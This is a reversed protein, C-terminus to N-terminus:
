TLFHENLTIRKGSVVLLKEKEMKALERSISTRSVGFHEALETKSIPLILSSNQQQDYLFLLYTVLQNRITVKFENKIRSGIKLSNDSLNKLVNLMFTKDLAMLDLVSEKSISLIDVDERAIFNMIYYPTSSFAVNNGIVDNAKFIRIILKDGNENLHEVEVTGRILLDIEFCEETNFHVIEGRRYMKLVSKELIEQYTDNSIGDLMSHKYKKM